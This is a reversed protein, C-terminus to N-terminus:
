KLYGRVWERNLRLASQLETTKSGVSQQDYSVHANMASSAREAECSTGDLGMKCVAVKVLAPWVNRKSCWYEVASMERVALIDEKYLALERHLLDADNTSAHRRILAAHHAEFLDVDDDLGTDDM